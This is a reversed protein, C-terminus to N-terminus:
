TLPRHYFRTLLPPDESIMFLHHSRGTLADIMLAADEISVRASSFTVGYVAEVKKDTFLIMCDHPHAGGSMLVFEPSEWLMFEVLYSRIEDASGAQQVPSHGSM